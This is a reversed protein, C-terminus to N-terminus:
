YIMEWMSSLIEHCGGRLLRGATLSGSRASGRLAAPLFSASAGQIRRCSLRLTGILVRWVQVAAASGPSHSSLEVLPKGARQGRGQLGALARLDGSECRRGRLAQNWLVARSSPGSRRREASRERGGFCRQLRAAEQGPPHHTRGRHPHLCNADAPSVNM